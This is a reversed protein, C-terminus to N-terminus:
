MGDRKVVSKGRKKVVRFVRDAHAIQDPIHSVM